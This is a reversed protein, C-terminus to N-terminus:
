RRRASDDTLGSRVRPQMTQFLWADGDRVMTGELQHQLPYRRGNPAEVDEIVGDVTVSVCREDRPTVSMQLVRYTSRAMEGSHEHALLERIADRGAAFRGWPHIANGDATWAAAMRAPDHDNWASAFRDVSLRVENELTM